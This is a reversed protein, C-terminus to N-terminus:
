IENLKELALKASSSLQSWEETEVFDTIYPLEKIIKSSVAELQEDFDKLIKMESQSFAELYWEQKKPIQYCSDWQCFLEASVDAIPAEEQYKLQEEKSAILGLVDFVENRFNNKLEEKLHTDM